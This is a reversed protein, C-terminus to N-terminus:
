ASPPPPNAGSFEAGIERARRWKVSARHGPGSKSFLLSFSDPIQQADAVKLRFGTGSLHVVHCQQIAFSGTQRIWANTNGQQQSAGKLFFSKAAEMM